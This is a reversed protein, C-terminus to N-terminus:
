GGRANAHLRINTNWAAAIKERRADRKKERELWATCDRENGTRGMGLCSSLDNNEASILRTCTKCSPYPKPM